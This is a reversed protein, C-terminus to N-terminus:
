CSKRGMFKLLLGMLLGVVVMSLTNLTELQKIFTGYTEGYEANITGLIPTSAHDYVADRYYFIAAKVGLGYRKEM